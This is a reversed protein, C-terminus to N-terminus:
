SYDALSRGERLLDEAHAAPNDLPDRAGLAATISGEALPTVGSRSIPGKSLLIVDAGEAAAELAARTGAAGGGIVLVDTDYQPAIKIQRHHM